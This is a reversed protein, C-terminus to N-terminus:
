NLDRRNAVLGYSGVHHDIADAVAFHEKKAKHAGLAGGGLGTMAPTIRLEHIGTPGLVVQYVLKHRRVFGGGLVRGAASGVEADGSYGDPRPTVRYGLSSLANHTTQAVAVPDGYIDWITERMAHNQGVPTQSRLM